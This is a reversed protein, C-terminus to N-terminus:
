GTILACLRQCKEALLHTITRKINKGVNVYWYREFSDTMRSHYLSWDADVRRNESKRSDHKGM